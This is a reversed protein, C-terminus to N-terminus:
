FGPTLTVTRYGYPAVHPTRVVFEDAGASYPEDLIAFSISWGLVLASGSHRVM